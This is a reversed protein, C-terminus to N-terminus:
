VALCSLLLYDLFVFHFNLLPVFFLYLANGRQIVTYRCYSKLLHDQDESLM